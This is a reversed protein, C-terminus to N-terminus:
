ELKRVFQLDDANVFGVVGSKLSVQYCHEGVGTMKVFKGAHVTAVQDGGNPESTVSTDALIRYLDATPSIAPPPRMTPITVPTPALPEPTPEPMPTVLPPPTPTPTPSPPLTEFTFGNIGTDSKGRMVQGDTAHFVVEGYARKPETGHGTLMRLFAVIQNTENDNSNGSGIPEMQSYSIRPSKWQLKETTSSTLRNTYQWQEFNDATVNHFDRSYILFSNDSDDGNYGFLNITITGEGCTGHNGADYLQVYIALGDEGEPEVTVANVYSAPACESSSAPASPASGSDRSHLVYQGFVIAGVLLGAVAVLEFFRHLRLWESKEVFLSGCNGCYKANDLPTVHQCFKCSKM